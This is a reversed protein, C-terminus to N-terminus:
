GSARIGGVMARSTNLGRLNAFKNIKAALEDSDTVVAGGCEAPLHKEADFSFCGIDGTTGAKRGKYDGLPNQCCDEIVVIGRDRAIDMIPDMDCMLGYWHVVIIAKTRSTVVKEIDEATVCGNRVNVDSFVPLAGEAIVGALSGYDSIASVVVEDRPGLGLAAVAAHVAATCNAVTVVHKAGCAEAFAKEFRSKVDSTLGSEVVERLYELAKEPYRRPFM